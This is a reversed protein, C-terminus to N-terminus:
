FSNQKSKLFINHQSPEQRIRFVLGKNSIYKAFIRELIHSKVKVVTAKSSCVNRIKIFNLKSTKKRTYNM